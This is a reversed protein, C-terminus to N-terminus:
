RSLLVGQGIVTSRAEPWAAGLRERAVPSLVWAATVSRRDLWAALDEQPVLERGHKVDLPAVLQWGDGQPTAWVMRSWQGWLVGLSAWGMPPRPTEREVLLLGRGVERDLAGRRLLLGARISSPDVYSMPRRVGVALMAVTFLGLALAAARGPTGRRATLAAVGLGALPFLAVELTSVLRPSFFDVERGHSVFIGLGKGSAIELLVGPLGVAALLLLPKLRRREKWFLAVAAGAWLLAGPAWRVLGGLRLELVHLRSPPGALASSMEDLTRLFAFPNGNTAAQAVCLALPGALALSAVIADSRAAGRDRARRALAYAAAVYLV